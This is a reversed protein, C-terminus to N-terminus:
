HLQTSVYIDHIKKYVNQMINKYENEFQFSPRKLNERKKTLLSEEVVVISVNEVSFDMLM